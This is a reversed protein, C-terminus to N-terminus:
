KSEEEKESPKDEVKKLEALDEQKVEINTEFQDRLATKNYHNAMNLFVNNIEYFTFDGEVQKDTDEITQFINETLKQMRNMAREQSAKKAKEIKSIAQKGNPIKNTKKPKAKSM